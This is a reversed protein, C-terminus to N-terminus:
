QEIVLGQALFGGDVVLTHGSVFSAGDSCLWLVAEAIEEPNGIRGTPLSGSVQQITEEGAEELMDTRIPGPAVANVRIGQEAYEMAAAQTLGIVAHKSATYIGQGPFVNKFGNISINNVIRGGEGGELMQEIEYKMCLFVGRVNVAFTFDFNEATQEALPADEGTVGANNFALDLRGFEDVARKVLAQVDGEESVDTKQFVAEGGGDSIQRVTEEGADESRNGIVLRAGSKALALASARGIGSGGGTVIAVRGELAEARGDM